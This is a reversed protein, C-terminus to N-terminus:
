ARKAGDIAADLDGDEYGYWDRGLSEIVLRLMDQERHRADATQYQTTTWEDEDGEIQIPASAQSLDARIKLVEGWPMRYTYTTTM